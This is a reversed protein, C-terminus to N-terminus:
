QEEPDDGDDEEDEEDDDAAIGKKEKWEKFAKDYEAKKAAAQKEFPAKLKADLKKWKEGGLKAVVSGLATDAEKVLAARNEGLWLWYSSPPKKPKDADRELRARKKARKDMLEKKADAKEKRRGGAVGGQAKFEEMAKEYAKKADTAKKEYSARQAAAM